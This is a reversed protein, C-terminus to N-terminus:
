DDVQSAYVWVWAQVYAGIDDGHSVKPEDDFEITGEDEYLECAAKRYQEDTPGFDPDPNPTAYSEKTLAM